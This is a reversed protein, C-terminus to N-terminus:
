DPLLWFKRQYRYATLDLEALQRYLERELEPNTEEPGLLRRLAGNTQNGHKLGDEHHAEVSNDIYGAFRSPAFRFSGGELMAVYKKGRRLLEGYFDREDASQSTAYEALCKVNSRVEDLNNVLERM